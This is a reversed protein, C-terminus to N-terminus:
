NSYNSLHQTLRSVILRQKVKFTFGHFASSVCIIFTIFRMHYTCKYNRLLM